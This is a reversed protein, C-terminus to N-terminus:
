SCVISSCDRWLDVNGMDVLALKCRATLSKASDASGKRGASGDCPHHDRFNIYRTNLNKQFDGGKQVTFSLFPFIM